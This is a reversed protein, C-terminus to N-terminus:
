AQNKIQNGGTTREGLSISLYLIDFIASGMKEELRETSRGPATPMRGLISVWVGYVPDTCDTCVYVGVTPYKKQDTCRGVTENRKENRTM